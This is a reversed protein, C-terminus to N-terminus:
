NVIRFALKEELIHLKRISGVCSAVCKVTFSSSNCIRVFVCKDPIGPTKSLWSAWVIFLTPMDSSM